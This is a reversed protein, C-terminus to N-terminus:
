EGKAGGDALGVVLKRQVLLYFLIVPVTVLVAGALLMGWSYINDQGIWTALGLPLTKNTESSVFVLAFLFENWAHNFSFVGVSIIGPLALPVTVRMMAGLRTCGDIMASEELSIPIANFYSRMFWLALPLTFATNAIILSILTDAMGLKVVYIYLPLVILVEPLMYCVLTANSFAAIGFFRFRSLSYAGLGGVVLSLFTAGFAVILSNAFYTLFNTQVFLDRYNQLTWENPLFTPPVAYLEGGPKFSCILMWFLPFGIVSVATFALLYLMIRSALYHMDAIDRNRPLSAPTRTAIATM